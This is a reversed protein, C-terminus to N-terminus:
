VGAVGGDQEIVLRGPEPEAGILEDFPQLAIEIAAVRRALSPDTEDDRTLLRGLARTDSSTILKM